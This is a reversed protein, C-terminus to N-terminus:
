PILTTNVLIVSSLVVAIYIHSFGYVHGYMKENQPKFLVAANLYFLVLSVAILALIYVPLLKVVEIYFSFMTVVILVAASAALVKASRAMGIVAPLMPIGANEYDKTHSGAFSWFHMPIWAFLLIAIYIAPVTVPTDAATWGALAAFSAAAGGIVISWYTRRKLLMTYIITYTLFGLFIFISSLLGIMAYAVIVSAALMVSAIVTLASRNNKIIEVRYRTREMKEDLDADYLNNFIAASMSALFGTALLPALVYPKSMFSPSAMYGALSSVGVIFIIDSKAVRLFDSIRM